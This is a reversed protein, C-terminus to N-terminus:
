LGLYDKISKKVDKPKLIKTDGYKKKFNSLKTRKAKQFTTGIEKKGTKKERGTLRSEINKPDDEMITFQNDIGLDDLFDKTSSGFLRDGEFLINIDKGKNEKIFKKFIPAVSMSLKDTGSFVENPDDYKNGLIILNQSPSKYGKMGKVIDVNEFDGIDSIIEKMLTTKGVGREGGLAYVKMKNEEEGLGGGKIKQTKIRGNYYRSQEM